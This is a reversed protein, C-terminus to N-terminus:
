CGASKDDEDIKESSSKESRRKLLGKLFDYILRSVVGFGIVILQNFLTNGSNNEDAM